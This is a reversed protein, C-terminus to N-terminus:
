LGLLFLIEKRTQSIRNIEITMTLQFTKLDKIRIIGGIFVSFSGWILQVLDQGVWPIASLLNTIVTAGWELLDM